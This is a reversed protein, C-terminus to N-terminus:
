VDEQLESKPKECVVVEEVTTQLSLKSDKCFKFRIM